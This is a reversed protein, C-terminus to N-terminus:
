LFDHSGMLLFSPPWINHHSSARGRTHRVTCVREGHRCLPALRARGNQCVFVTAPLGVKGLTHADGNRAFRPQARHTHATPISRSFTGYRDRPRPGKLGRHLNEHRRAAHPATFAYMRSLHGASSKATGLQNCPQHRLRNSPGLQASYADKSPANSRLGLM